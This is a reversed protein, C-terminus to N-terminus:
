QCYSFTKQTEPGNEGDEGEIFIKNDYIFFRIGRRRIAEALYIGNIQKGIQFFYKQRYIEKIKKCNNDYINVLLDIQDPDSLGRGTHCVVWQNGMPKAGRNFGIPTKKDKIFNWDKTFYSFKTQSQVIITEDFFHLRAYRIFEGPGEGQRGFKKILRYDDRSYVYIVPFEIIYLHDKHVYLASPNGLQNLVAVKGPFLPITISVFFLLLLLLLLLLKRMLVGFM